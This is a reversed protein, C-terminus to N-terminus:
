PSWVREAPRRRLDRVEALAAAYRAGLERLLRPLEEGSASAYVFACEDCRDM